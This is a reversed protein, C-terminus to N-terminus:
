CGSTEAGRSGAASPLTGRWSVNLQEVTKSAAAWVEKHASSLSVGKKDHGWDPVGREWYDWQGPVQRLIQLFLCRWITVKLVFLCLRGCSKVRRQRKRQWHLYKDFVYSSKECGALMVLLWWLLVSTWPLYYSPICSITELMLAPSCRVPPVQKQHSVNTSAVFSFM